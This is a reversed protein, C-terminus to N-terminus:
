GNVDIEVMMEYASITNHRLKNKRYDERLRSSGYRCKVNTATKQIDKKALPINTNCRRTHLSIPHKRHIVLIRPLQAQLLQDQETRRPALMSVIIGLDNILNNSHLILLLRHWTRIEKALLWNVTTLLSNLHHSILLRLNPHPQRRNNSSNCLISHKRHSVLM